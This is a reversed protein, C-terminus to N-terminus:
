LFVRKEGEVTMQTGVITRKKSCFRETRRRKWKGCMRSGLKRCWRSGSEGCSRIGATECRRSDEKEWMEEVRTEQFEKKRAKRLEPRRTKRLEEKSPKLTRQNKIEETGSSARRVDRRGHVHLFSANPANKLIDTM